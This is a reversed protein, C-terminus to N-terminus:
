LYLQNLFKYKKLRDLKTDFFALKQDTNLPQDHQKQDSSAEASEVGLQPFNDPIPLLSAVGEHMRQLWKANHLHIQVHM